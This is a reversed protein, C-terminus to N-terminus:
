REKRIYANLAIFKGTAMCKNCGVFKSVVKENENLEFYKETERRQGM